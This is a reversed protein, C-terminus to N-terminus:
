LHYIERYYQSPSGDAERLYSEEWILGPKGGKRCQVLVLSVPGAARHRLLLLRKPELGLNSAQTFLQALRDPKHVFFLDGGYKLAHAAANMWTSVSCSGEQRATAQTKSDFGGSFYPPNTVCCTFSGPPVLASTNALDDHICTFRNEIHNVRANEAAARHANEDLEIGTIRCDPHVACLMLGLTGCGSGLDLVTAAKPLKTFAALAVSDTSLPFAGECLSLTFGNPLFEM